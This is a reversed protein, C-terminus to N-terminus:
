DDSVVKRLQYGFLSAITGVLIPIMLTIIILIIQNIGLFDQMKNVILFKSEDIFLNNMIMIFWSFSLVIASDITARYKTEAFFGIVTSIVTIIWWPFFLCTVFTIVSYLFIRIINPYKIM